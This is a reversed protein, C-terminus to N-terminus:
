PLVRSFFADSGYAGSFRRTWITLRASSHPLGRGTPVLPAPGFKLETRGLSSLDGRDAGIDYPTPASRQIWTRAEPQLKECIMELIPM